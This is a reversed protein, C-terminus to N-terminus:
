SGFGESGLVVASVESGNISVRYATVTGDPSPVRVTHDGEEVGFTRFEVNAAWDYDPRTSITGFPLVTGPRVFVPAEVDHVALVETLVERRHEIHFIGDVAFVMQFDRGRANVPRQHALAVILAENAM